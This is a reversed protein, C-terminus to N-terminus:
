DTNSINTSVDEILMRTKSLFIKAKETSIRDSGKLYRFAPRMSTLKQFILEHNNKNELSDINSFFSRTKQHSLPESPDPNELSFILAEIALEAASYLNDIMPNLKNEKFCYEASEFFQKSILLLKKSRAINHQFDFFLNWKGDLIMATFHTCGNDEDKLQINELGSVQNDYITDGPKFSFGEKLKFQANGKVENNIRVIPKGYHPSFVVQFRTLTLPTPLEGREQRKSLDPKVFMDYFNDLINKASDDSKLKNDLM